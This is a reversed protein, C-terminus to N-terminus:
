PAGKFVLPLGAAVFEVHDAAAALRQNLRGQEDRFRRALANEPAISLGVENSVLMVRAEGAGPPRAPLRRHLADRRLAGRAAPDRPRRAPDAELIHDPGPSAALLAEVLAATEAAVDRGAHMLNSLWLTLCDIVLAGERHAAIVPALAMTAEVLRWDPGREAKHHAIREAMEDDLAEATAVFTGRGGALALARASKGSRAGGLILSVRVGRSGAPM